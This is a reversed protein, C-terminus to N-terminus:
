QGHPNLTKDEHSAKGKKLLVREHMLFGTGIPQIARIGITGEKALHLGTLQFPMGIITWLSDGLVQAPATALGKRLGFPGKEVPQTRFPLLDQLGQRDDGFLAANPRRGPDGTKVFIGDLPPHIPRAFM